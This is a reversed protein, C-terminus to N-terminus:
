LFQKKSRIDTGCVCSEYTCVVPEQLKIPNIDSYDNYRIIGCNAWTASGDDFIQISDNGAYCAWGKFKNKNEKILEFPDMKEVSSDDYISFSETDAMWRHSDSLEKYRESTLTLCSLNSQLWEEQDSTYQLQCTAGGWNDILKIPVAKINKLNCVQSYWNVSTEWYEPDMAVYVVLFSYESLFSFKDLNLKDQSPHLTVNWNDVLHKVDEFFRKTRVSNTDAQIKCNHEKLLLCLDIFQPHTTCEGGSLNVILKRNSFKNLFEKVKFLDIEKHIGNHLRDPCYRCKYPCNTTIIFTIRLVEDNALQIKIIKRM